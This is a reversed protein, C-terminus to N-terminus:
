MTNPFKEAMTRWIKKKKLKGAQKPPSWNCMELYQFNDMEKETKTREAKNQLM